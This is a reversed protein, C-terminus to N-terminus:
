LSLLFALLRNKNTTSLNNFANRATAAQNDHRLIATTLNFSLADHMFRSRTRLGWLPVTRVKNRTSAGGNQVIGDGTGIDHLLFDSFPRINKNGLANAVRLAGGNISTGPAATTISRTHCVACGTSNFLAAPWARRGHLACRIGRRRRPRGCSCRSCSSTWARTTSSPLRHSRIPCSSGTRRIRSPSSRARSAWRTRTPMLPSRSAPQGAAGELWLAWNRNQGPKEVVPVNILQGRQATPQRDAISQLTSNAIAEIFGDGLM